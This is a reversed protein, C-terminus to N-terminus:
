PLGTKQRKENIAEIWLKMTLDAKIQNGNGLYPRMEEEYLARLKDVDLPIKEALYLVDERDHEYHRELKSLALDYPDLAYLRLRQFVGPFMETLREAYSDPYTTVTVHDLYVGHTEHLPSGEKALAMLEPLAGSPKVYLVDMDHTTRGPFRYHVSVVFGGFCHLNVPEKIANDLDNLFAGWPEPVKPM